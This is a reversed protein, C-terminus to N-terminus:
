GKKMFNKLILGIQINSLRLYVFSLVIITIMSSLFLLLYEGNFVAESNKLVILIFVVLIGLIISSNFLKIQLNAIRRGLIFLISGLVLYSMIQSIGSVVIGGKHMFFYNVAM